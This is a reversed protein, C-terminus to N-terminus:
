QIVHDARVLISPPITLGLAKATKLNIVLEFKTPQEVPLDAPQAGKLIKDVFTAARRLLDSLNPGYAMLGGAEAFERAVAMTPLRQKAALDAIRTRHLFFMPDGLILLTRVRERAMAVFARDFEDPDRAQFMQLQVRLSRAADELEKLSLAHTENTPNRLVAVRSVRPIVEKLLELQKGVLEPSLLSLGTINGGPRALSAVLGSGAPDSQNTMVIPITGTARKAAIPPPSGGAVIVDVKLRVLEAALDPLREAKGESFRREVAINQGEVYGLERLGQFFAEWLRAGAPDGPSVTALIGIRFVKGPQAEAALPAGLLGLALAVALCACKARM